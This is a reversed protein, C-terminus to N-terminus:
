RAARRSPTPSAPTRPRGRARRRTSRRDVPLRERAASSFSRLGPSVRSRRPAPVAAADGALARQGEAVIRGLLGHEVLRGALRQGRLLLRKTRRPETRLAASRIGARRRRRRLDPIVSRARCCSEANCLRGSARRLRCPRPRDRRLRGARATGHRQLEQGRRELGIRVAARPQQVLGAGRRQQARRVDGDGVVDALVGAGVEDDHLVDLALQERLPDRLPRQRDAFHDVDAHLDGVREVLRVAAADDMAVDLAGVQNAGVAAEDLHEVEAQRLEQRRFLAVLQDGLLLHGDGAHHDAGDRVHRRLLRESAADIMAGVQEREADHEVLQRGAPHRKGPRRRGLDDVLDQVLRRRRRRRQIGHHRLREVRDHRARQLLRRGEAVLRRAVHPLVQALQGLASSSDNRTLVLRAATAIALWCAEAISRETATIVKALMVRSAASSQIPVPMASVTLESRFFM